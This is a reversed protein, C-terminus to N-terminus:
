QYFNVKGTAVNHLGGVIKIEGGQVMEKLVPSRELINSMNQRINIETVNNVFDVNSANRNEKTETEAKIAPQIKDLLSTLNGM